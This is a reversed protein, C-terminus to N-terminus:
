AWRKSRSSRAPAAARRGPHRRHDAARRAEERDAAVRRVWDPRAANLGGEGQVTELMIAAPADIGGSADSLMPDLLAATDVGEAYGDFPMRTVGSTDM